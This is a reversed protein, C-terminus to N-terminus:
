KLARTEVQERQQKVKQSVEKAHEVEAHAHEKINTLIRERNSEAISHAIAHSAEKQDNEEWDKIVKKGVVDVVHEM